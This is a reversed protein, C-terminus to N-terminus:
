ISDIDDDVGGIGEGGGGNEKKKRKMRKLVARTSSKMNLSPGLLGGTDDMLAKNTIKCVRVAFRGGGGRGGNNSSVSVEEEALTLM